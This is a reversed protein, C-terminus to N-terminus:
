NFQELKKLIENVYDKVFFVIKKTFTKGLLQKGCVITTIDGLTFIILNKLFINEPTKKM